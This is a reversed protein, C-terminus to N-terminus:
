AVSPGGGRDWPGPSVSSGTGRGGLVQGGEGEEKAWLTRWAEMDWGAMDQPQSM